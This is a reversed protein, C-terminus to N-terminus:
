KSTNDVSMPVVEHEFLRFLREHVPVPDEGGPVPIEHPERLSLKLTCMNLEDEGYALMRQVFVFLAAAGWFAETNHIGHRRKVPGGVKEWQEGRPGAVAEQEAEGTRKM